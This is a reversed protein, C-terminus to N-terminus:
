YTSGYNCKQAFIPGKMNTLTPTSRPELNYGMNPCSSLGILILNGPNIKFNQIRTRSKENQSRFQDVRMGQLKLTQIIM